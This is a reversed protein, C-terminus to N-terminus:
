SSFRQNFEVTGDRVEIGQPLPTPAAHAPSLFSVALSLAVTVSM